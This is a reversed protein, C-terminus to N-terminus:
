ANEYHACDRLDIPHVGHHFQRGKQDYAILSGGCPLESCLGVPTYYGTFEQTSVGSNQPTFSVTFEYARHETRFSGSGSVRGIRDLGPNNLDAVDASYTASRFGSPYGGINLLRFDDLGASVGHSIPPLHTPEGNGARTASTGPDQAQAQARTLEDPFSYERLLKVPSPLVGPPVGDVVAFGIKESVVTADTVVQIPHDGSGIDDPVAVVVYEQARYPDYGFDKDEVSLVHEGLRVHVVNELDEGNIRVERGRLNEEPFLSVLEPGPVVLEGAAIKGGGTSLQIPHVGTQLHDPVTFVLRRDTLEVIEAPVHGVLVKRVGNLGCGNLSVNDGPVAEAPTVDDVSLEHIDHNPWPLGDFPCEQITAAGLLVFPGVLLYQTM